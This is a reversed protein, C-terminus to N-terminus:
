PEATFQAATHWLQRGWNAEGSVIVAWSNDGYSVTTVDNDNAWQTQMFVLPSESARSWNQQGLNSDESMVVAWAGAGYALSTVDYGKAWQAQIYAQPSESALSWLQRGLASDESMVVAWAGDGYALSTVDYGNTWQTEIYAKPSESSLSWLQRGLGADESFIVVWHGDGYALETVEWGRNWNKEIEALPSESSIYWSQRGYGVGDSMVVGWRGPEYALSTVDYGDLWMAQIYNGLIASPDGETPLVGGEGATMGKDDPSRTLAWVAVLGLILLGAAGAWLWPSMRQQKAPPPDPEGFLPEAMYTPALPSRRQDIPKAEGAAPTPPADIVASAPSPPPVATEEAVAAAWEEPEEVLVTALSEAPAPAKPPTVRTAVSPPLGTEPRVLSEVVAALRAATSYRDDRDKAMAQAIVAECQPPLDQRFELVHPVPTLVHAMLQQVPTDAKFPMEGTLMQFLIVGLTYIDSRGDLAQGGQVQEPSMYAPTGVIADGTLTAMSEALKAIGFDSLFANEQNDFLINSPKLDRHIVGQSHSYDLADALRKLIPAITPLPMAGNDLRDALSGAPMYRMVLYPQGQHEGFDYVPVIADHELRAITRAERHFREHFIPDHLFQRPLVKIAVQRDFRPDHALYVSAMGGKGLLRQIEYRGFIRSETM